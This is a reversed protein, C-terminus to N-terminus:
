HQSARLCRHTCVSLSVCLVHSMHSSKGYAKGYKELVVEAMMIVVSPITQLDLDRLVSVVTDAGIFHSRTDMVFVPRLQSSRWVWTWSGPKESEILLRVKDWEGRHPILFASPNLALARPATGHRDRVPQTNTAERLRLKKM